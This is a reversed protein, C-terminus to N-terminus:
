RTLIFGRMPPVVAPLQGGQTSLTGGELVMGGNVAVTHRYAISLKPAGHPLNDSNVVFACPGIPLQRYFCRRYERVYTGGPDRLDNAGSVDRKLPDHAVIGTEPTIHLQGPTLPKYATQYISYDPDWALMFSAFTFIRANPDNAIYRVYDWFIKHLRITKIEIDLDDQWVTGSKLADPSNDAYCGECMGGLVNPPTLAYQPVLHLDPKDSYISLGNFIIKPIESRGSADIRVAALLAAYAKAIAPETWPQPPNGTCPPGNALDWRFADVDDFFYVTYAANYRHDLSWDLLRVTDPKAPDVLYGAPKSTRIQAGSCDTAIAGAFQGGDVSRYASDTTYIRSADIYQVTHEIGALRDALAGDPLDTTAWSVFPAAQVPSVTDNAYGHCCYVATPVHSEVRANEASSGAFALVLLLVALLPAAVRQVYRTDSTRACM